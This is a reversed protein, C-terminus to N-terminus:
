GSLQSLMANENAQADALNTNTTTIFQDFATNLDTRAAALKQQLTIFEEKVKGEWSAALASDSQNTEDLNTQLKTRDQTMQDIATQVGAAQVVFDFQGPM